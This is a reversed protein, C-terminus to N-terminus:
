GIEYIMNEIFNNRKTVWEPTMSKGGFTAQGEHIRYFLLIDPINYIKGYKKLLKLELEFDEAIITSSKNYNGVSLIASKKYCLTPHNMFWHSKIQKYDNWTLQEPHNTKEGYKKEGNYSTSHGSYYSRNDSMTFYQINSGCIVCEPTMKMFKLQKAIRYPTMIDDSDMKYILENSCKLIGENLCAGIGVNKDLNIYVLKCFRTTNEFYQLLKTLITTNKENSGDNVWVLEIGFYGQQLKISELCEYIYISDTNYSSVLVSVWNDPSPPTLINPLDIENMMDYNQKTSGWEQYAYVKDHGNYVLGTHHIPLFFHSPFITVDPYKTPQQSGNNNNRMSLALANSSPTQLLRTILGPGTLMWARKGTEEVSVNNHLIWQIADFCLPHKPPFGLTGTAVLNKRVHENEYGAFAKANLIIDDFPEICISDADIYIGGYQYLIELRIIDVKGCIESMTNIQKWCKLKLGRRRMEDETWLIYTFEPHKTKWTDMFKSPRPKPGIWIQHIIKPITMEINNSDM